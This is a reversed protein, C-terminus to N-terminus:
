GAVAAAREDVLRRMLRRPYAVEGSAVDALILPLRAFDVDKVLYGVAGAALAALMDEDSAAITMLVVRTAPVHELIEAAARIGNGPM